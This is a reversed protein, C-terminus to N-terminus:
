LGDIESERDSERACVGLMWVGVSAEEDLERMGFGVRVACILYSREHVDALAGELVSAV